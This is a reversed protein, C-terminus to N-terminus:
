ESSVFNFLCSVCVSMHLRVDVLSNGNGGVADGGSTPLGVILLGNMIQGFYKIFSGIPRSFSSPAYM